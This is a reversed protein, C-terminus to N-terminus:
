LTVHSFECKVFGMKSVLVSLLMILVIVVLPIILYKNDDAEFSKETTSVPETTYNTTFHNM